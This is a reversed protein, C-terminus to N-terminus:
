KVFLFCHCHGYKEIEKKHYVCPCIIKDDEKKINKVRHCPCYKKGYKKERELLVGILSDVVKQDPNLHFGNKKAYGQYEKLLKEFEKKRKVMNFFIDTTVVAKEALVLGGERAV